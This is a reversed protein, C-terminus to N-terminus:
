EFILQDVVIQREMRRLESDIADMQSPKKSRVGAVSVPEYWRKKPMPPQQWHQNLDAQLCEVSCFKRLQKKHIIVECIPCTRM